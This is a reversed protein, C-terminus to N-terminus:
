LLQNLKLQENQRDLEMLAGLAIAALWPSVLIKRSKLLQVLEPLSFLAVEQNESDDSIARTRNSHFSNRALFFYAFGGGRNGKARYKGMFLLEESELGAEELLERRACDSATEGPDFYGGLPAYSKADLAYKSQYFLLYKNEVKLHALICVHSLEELWIWNNKIQGKETKMKHVECRAHKTSALVTSRILGKPKWVDGSCPFFLIYINISRLNLLQRCIAGYTYYKQEPTSFLEVLAEVVRDYIFFLYIGDLVAQFAPLCFSEHLM